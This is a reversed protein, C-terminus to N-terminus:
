TLWSTRAWGIVSVSTRNPTKVIENFAEQFKKKMHGVNNHTPSRTRLGVIKTTKNDKDVVFGCFPSYRYPVSPASPPPRSRSIWSVMMMTTM